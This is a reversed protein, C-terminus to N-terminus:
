YSCVVCTLETSSCPIHYGCVSRTTHLLHGNENGGSGPIQELNKDICTYMSSGVQDFDGAMIYGNYEKRWGPPCKYHSPIMVTTSRGTVKCLACPMNRDHAHSNVGSIQYEVGYIHENGASSRSYYQPDPPLCLMNAPSGKHTYYGGGAYGSYMTDAGYECTSNGWRIYTVVNPPCKETTDSDKVATENAVSSRKYEVERVNRKNNTATLKSELRQIKDLLYSILPSNVDEENIDLATATASCTGLIIITLATVLQLKM